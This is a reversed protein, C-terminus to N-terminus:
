PPKRRTSASLSSGARRSRFMSVASGFLSATALLEGSLSFTVSRPDSATDFPSGTVPTLAGDAAVSFVSVNSGGLNATALLGGSPGLAAFCTCGIIPLADALTLAGTAAVKFVAVRGPMITATALLGGSPTFAVSTPNTGGAAFPSGTVQAFAPQQALAVGAGGLVGIWVVGAALVL